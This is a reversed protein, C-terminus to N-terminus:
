PREFIFEHTYENGDYGVVVIKDPYVLALMCRDRLVETPEGHNGVVDKYDTHASGEGFWDAYKVNASKLFEQPTM